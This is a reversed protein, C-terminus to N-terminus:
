CPRIRLAAFIFLTGVSFCCSPELSKLFNNSTFIQANVQNDLPSGCGKRPNQDLIVLDPGPFSQAPNNTVTSRNYMEDELGNIDSFVTEIWFGLIERDFVADAM